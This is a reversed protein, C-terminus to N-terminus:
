KHHYTNTQCLRLGCDDGLGAVPGEVDTKLIRLLNNQRPEVGLRSPDQGGRGVRTSAPGAGDLLPKPVYYQSQGIFRSFVDIEVGGALQHGISKSADRGNLSRGGDKKLLYFFAV